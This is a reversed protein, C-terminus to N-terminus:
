VLKQIGILPIKQAVDRLIKWYFIPIAGKASCRPRPMKNTKPLEVLSPENYFSTPCSFFDM